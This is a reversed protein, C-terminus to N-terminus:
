TGAANVIAEMGTILKKSQESLKVKMKEDFYDREADTLDYMERAHPLLRLKGRSLKVLEQQREPKELIWDVLKDVKTFTAGEQKEFSKALEQIKQALIRGKREDHIKQYLNDLETEPMRFVFKPVIFKRKGNPMKIAGKLRRYRLKIKEIDRTDEYIVYFKVETSHHGPRKCLVWFDITRRVNSDIDKPSQTVIFFVIRKIGRVMANIHAITINVFSQWKQKEILVRGEDMWVFCVDKFEPSYIIKPMSKVYDPPTFMIITDLFKHLDIGRKKALISLSSLVFRSKGEGSKGTVMIICNKNNDIRNFVINSFIEAVQDDEHEKFECVFDQFALPM